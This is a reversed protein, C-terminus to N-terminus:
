FRNSKLKTRGGEEPEDDFPAAAGMLPTLGTSGAGARSYPAAAARNALRKSSRRQIGLSMKAPDASLGTLLNTASSSSSFSSEVSRRSSMEQRRSNNAARARQLAAVNAARPTCGPKVPSTSIIQLKLPGTRSELKKIAAGHDQGVPEGDIALLVDGARIGAVYAEDTDCVADVHLGNLQDDASLTIGVHGSKNIGVTRTPQTAALNLKNM